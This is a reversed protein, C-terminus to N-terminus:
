PVTGGHVLGHVLETIEVRRAEARRLSVHYGRLRLELPDGFPARKILAVEVGPVFGMELLRVTMPGHGGVARVRAHEGLALQDLTKPQDNQFAMEIHDIAGPFCAYLSPQSVREIFQAKL